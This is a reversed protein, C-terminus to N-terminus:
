GRVQDLVALADDAKSLCFVVMCCCAITAGWGPAFIAGLGWLHALALHMLNVLVLRMM